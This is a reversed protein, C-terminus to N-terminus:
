RRGRKSGRPCAGSRLPRHLIAQARTGVRCRKTKANYEGKKCGVVIAAGGSHITRFSRPDFSAAGIKREHCYQARTAGSFSGPFSKGIRRKAHQRVEAPLKSWPIEKGLHSGPVCDDWQSFGSPSNPNDSLGLCHHMMKNGHYYVLAITYRDFTKGGNDYIGAISESGSRGLSHRAHKRHKHTRVGEWPKM